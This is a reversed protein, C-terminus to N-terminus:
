FGQGLVVRYALECLEVRLCGYQSAEIKNMNAYGLAILLGGQGIDKVLDEIFFRSVEAIDQWFFLLSQEGFQYGNWLVM